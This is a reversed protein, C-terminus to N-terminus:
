NAPIWIRLRGDETGAALSLKGDAGTTAALNTGVRGDVALRWVERAGEATHQIAAIHSRDQTTVVIEPQGDGNFDGAVAMDLNRSGIVHSTYGGLREVITLSEGDYRYFEVVGGIHPTLVDVLAMEDGPGFAGWALQHRWRFGQGIAPGDVERLSDDQVLYARIQAGGRGNSVTTVLDPTGDEDIDAWMPSLGEYVADDALLVRHLETLQGSEIALVVLETGELDDGMIGHVYRQDTAGAYLAIQDRENVVLRADEQVTLAMRHQEVGDLMLVVDGARSVLVEYAGVRVPHSLPSVDCQGPLGSLERVALPLACGAEFTPTRFSQTGSDVTLLAGDHRTVLWRTNDGKAGVVWEPTGQLDVDITEVDPFTGQGTVFRNGTPQHYTYFYAADDMIMFDTRETDPDDSSPTDAVDQAIVAVTLLLLIIVIMHRIKIEPM